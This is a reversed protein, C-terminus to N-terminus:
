RIEDLTVTMAREEAHTHVRFTAETSITVAIPGAFSPVHPCCASGWSGPATSHEADVDVRYPCFLPAVQVDDALSTAHARRSM